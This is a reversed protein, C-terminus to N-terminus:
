QGYDERLQAVVLDLTRDLLDAVQRYVEISGGYPDPIEREGNPFGAYHMMTKVNAHPSVARVRAMHHEGMTLIITADDAMRLGYNRSRHESLDFGRELGVLYSGESAKNGPIATTGASAVQVHALRPERSLKDRLMAQALPSRCTNGSCVLLVLM